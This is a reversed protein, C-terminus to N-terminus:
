EPRGNSPAQSFPKQLHLALVGSRGDTEELGPKYVPMQIYHSGSRRPGFGPLVLGSLSKSSPPFTPMLKCLM